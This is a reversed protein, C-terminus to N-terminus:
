RRAGKTARPGARSRPRDQQFTSTRGQNPKADYTETRNFLAAYHAEAALLAREGDSTVCYVKLPPSSRVVRTEKLAIFGRQSLRRIAGYVQAEYVPAGSWRKSLSRMIERAYADVGLALILQMITIQFPGLLDRSSAGREPSDAKTKGDFM